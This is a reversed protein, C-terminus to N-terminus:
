LYRVQNRGEDKALYLLDDAKEIFNNLTPIIEFNSMSVVGMSVTVPIIYDKFVFKHLEVLRRIKEAMIVAGMKPTEPIIIAFEEGGVRGLIDTKRIASKIIKAFDKLVYDGAIHGYTDNVKKFFDIDLIVYSLEKNYRSVREFEYELRSTFYRKNYIQTLSDFNKLNYLEKHYQSEENYEDLFKFGFDGIKIIDSDRLTVENIKIGNVYVGNTSNNDKILYTNDGLKTITLHKRSVSDSFLMLNSDSARGIITTIEELAYSFGIDNGKIEILYAHSKNKKNETLFPNKSIVTRGEEYM